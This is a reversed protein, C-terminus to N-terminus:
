GEVHLFGALKAITFRDRLYHASRRAAAVDDEGLGLERPIAPCGASALLRAIEEARPVSAALAAIEDWNNRIASKLAGCDAAGLSLFRDHAAIVEEAAAGFDGRIARAGAEADPFRAAALLGELETRGVDRIREWLGATMVTAVGVKLGHLVPPRGEDMLRMEWFHSYHHEAGSAPRSHGAETMAKGSELLGRMLTAVGEPSGTAIAPAAQACDEAAHRMRRAIADDWPEGWLLAGLRWDALATFKCIMDGFGAAIMARPAACLVDLDGFVAAPTGAAVTRKAGNIMLAAVTSTYADVSPASPLSVFPMGRRHAYYRVIDTITGSGVAVFLRRGGDDDLLLEGLASADARVSRDFVTSTVDIGAKRLQGTASEGLAAWTNLDAVVHVSKFGGERCFLCLQEPADRVIAPARGAASEGM